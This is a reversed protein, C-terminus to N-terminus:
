SVRALAGQRGGAVECLLRQWEPLVFSWDFREVARRANASLRGALGPITILRSVAAAMAEADDPPVLLSDHEHRLLYPIGGVNTSVVCLGCAMAELVSVPTNDVNTTNLFIDGQELWRPVESKPVSAFWRVSSEVGLVRAAQQAEELSGDSKDPGAMMLTAGPLVGHLNALVKPALAPNYIRHFARLWMLRPQVCDRRGYPYTGLDLPNPLLRLGSRYAGLCRLLYPSPATVAAAGALHLRVRAAHRAAFAPLNGGHLTLVYPKGLSRLLRCVAECWVFALGSYVDVIAVEYRNRERWVTSLMDMLRQVKGVRRSTMLVPWGEQRLRLGLDESVARTGTQSPLYSSVLLVAVRDTDAM